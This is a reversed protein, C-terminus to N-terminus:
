RRVLLGIGLFLLVVALGTALGNKGTAFGRIAESMELTKARLQAEAAGITGAFFAAWVAVKRWYNRTISPLRGDIKEIDKVGTKSIESAVRGPGANYAASALGPAGFRALQARLYRAGMTLSTRPDYLEEPRGNFGMSRATSYLTQMLGYSAEGLAPEYRYARPNWASEVQATAALLEFPIGEAAAVERALNLLEASAGM